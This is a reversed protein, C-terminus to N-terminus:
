PGIKKQIKLDSKRILFFVKQYGIDELLLSYLLPKACSDISQLRTSDGISFTQGDVSCISIVCTNDIEKGLRKYEQELEKITMEYIKQLRETFNAWNSICLNGKM